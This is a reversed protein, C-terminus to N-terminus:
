EIHAEEKENQLEKLSIDLRKRVYEDIALGDVVEYEFDKCRVPMAFCFDKPIGYKSGDSIVGM